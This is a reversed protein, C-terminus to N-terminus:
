RTLEDQLISRPSVQMQELGIPSEPFAIRVGEEGVPQLGESRIPVVEFRQRVWKELTDLDEKGAVVLKMRRACYYKAWWDILQQRPDRGESKPKAWLSQYNGTGFKHYAHDNRMIHKEMQFFRQEDTSSDLFAILPISAWM